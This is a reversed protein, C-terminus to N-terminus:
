AIAGRAAHTEYLAQLRDALERQRAALQIALTRRSRLLLFRRADRWAGRWRERVLLGAMGVVPAGAVVLAVASAGLWLGAATALTAIWIAYAPIGVLLKHTAVQDPVPRLWGAIWGTLRYPAYFLLVGLVAVTAALPFVLPVRRASWSLGRGLGVDARLDAPRLGLRTLRRCYAGVDAALALANPDREARVAALVRTTVDLRAVRDAPAPEAGREAEWIRVACEALPRDEWHELNVTVRRLAADIRATLARVADADGIGAPALDDWPVPEGTLVLAESRFVDKARFVLGLPVIPFACGVAPFAGLAMRAAGTRLPALAPASHSLGEPFIGVAHGAALAAHVARFTAENRATLAPDDAARYVPIAGAARVLWGVKRDAFLPAKALFRLPRRAAAQVLVPDFLSNPHNAVLLVPGSAPVRGGALTLRYYVHCAARAVPPFLPLLWPM